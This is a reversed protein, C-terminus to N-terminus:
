GPPLVRGPNMIGKPDLWGKVQRMLAIEVPDKYQQMEHLHLSGIGHEASFTGGMPVAIDYLDHALRLQYAPKDAVARWAEHTLMGIYHLNGDGLHGVIVEEVGPYSDQLLAGAREIFEPIRYVPVAIDHTLGM